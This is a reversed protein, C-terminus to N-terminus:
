TGIKLKWSCAHLAWRTSHDRSPRPTRTLPGPADRRGPLRPRVSPQKRSFASFCNLPQSSAHAEKRCNCGQNTHTHRLSLAQGPAEKKCGSPQISFPKGTEFANSIKLFAQDTPLTLFFMHENISTFHHHGNGLQSIPSLHQFWLEQGSKTSTTWLWLFRSQNEERKIPFLGLLIHQGQKSVRM